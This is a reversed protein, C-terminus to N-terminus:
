LVLFPLLDAGDERRNLAPKENKILIAEGWRLDQLSSFSKRVKVEWLSDCESNHKHIHSARQRFHQAIRVHLHQKTSGIYNKRCKVCIAEYIVMSKFCKKVDNIRCSNINCRRNRTPPILLPPNLINTLTRSKHAIRINYGPGFGRLARRVMTNVVDDVFPVSLYFVPLASERMTQARNDNLTLFPIQTHQNAKLKEILRNRCEIKEHTTACKDRIRRWENIIINRKLQTPLATTGSVFVDTRTPKTFSKFVPNEGRIDVTFDFISLMGDNVPHEIEFKIHEDATNFEGYVMEAEERSRAILLCDDVYRYFYPLALGFVLPEEISSMYHDALLGSIVNGIPLGSIQKYFLGEFSFYSNELVVLLLARIDSPVLGCYTFDTDILKQCFNDVSKRAPISTYMASVDLSFPYNYDLNINTRKVVLDQIITRSDSMSFIPRSVSNRLVRHLLWSLKHVPSGVTNVVPRVKLDELGKHTKVLGKFTSIRSATTSYMISISWNINRNKCVGKWVGNIRGEVRSVDLFSLRRYTSSDSLPNLVATRYTSVECVCFEGGKDSPLIKLPACRLSKLAGIEQRSLNRPVKRNRIRAMAAVNLPPRTVEQFNSSKLFNSGQYPREM